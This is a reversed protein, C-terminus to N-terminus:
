KTYYILNRQWHCYFNDLSGCLWGPSDATKKHGNQAAEFKVYPKKAIQLM